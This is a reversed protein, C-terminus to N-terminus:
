STCHFGVQLIGDLPNFAISAWPSLTDPTNYKHHLAHINRYLFENEHLTRHMWYIGVEVLLFYVVTMVIYAGLGGIESLHMYCKTYGSEILWEDLVPLGAYLFISMQALMIQDLVSGKKKVDGGKFVKMGIVSESRSVLWTWSFGLLYYLVTAATLNRLYITIFYGIEVGYQGEAWDAVGDLGILSNLWRNFTRFENEQLQM